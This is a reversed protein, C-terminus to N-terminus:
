IVRCFQIASQVAAAVKTCREVNWDQAESPFLTEEFLSIGPVERTTWPNLSGRGTCIRRGAQRYLPCLSM